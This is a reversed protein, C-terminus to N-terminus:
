SLLPLRESQRVQENSENHPVAYSNRVDILGNEDVTGLLTGIVRQQGENRRVYSDCISLLVTPTVAVKTSNQLVLVGEGSKTPM